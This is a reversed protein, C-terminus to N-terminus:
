YVKLKFKQSITVGKNYFTNAEFISKLSYHSPSPTLVNNILFNPRESSSIHAGKLPNLSKVRKHSPKEDSAFKSASTKSFGKSDNKFLDFFRKTKPITYSAISNQLSSCSHFESMGYSRINNVHNSQSKIIFESSRNTKKFVSNGTSFAKNFNNHTNNHSNNTNSSNSNKM